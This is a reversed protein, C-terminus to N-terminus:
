PVDEKPQPTPPPPTDDVVCDGDKVGHPLSAAPVEVITGDPAELIAWEGEVRDLVWLCMLLALFKM